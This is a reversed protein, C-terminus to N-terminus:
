TTRDKSEVCELKNPIKYALAGSHAFGLYLPIYNYNTHSVIFLSLSIWLVTLNDNYCSNNVEEYLLIDINSHILISLKFYILICKDNQSLNVNLSHMHLSLNQAFIALLFLYRLITCERARM